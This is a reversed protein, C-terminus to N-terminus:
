LTKIKVAKDLLVKSLLGQIFLCNNKSKARNSTKPATEFKACDVVAENDPVTESSFCDTIGFAVTVTRLVSVPNERLKCVSPSPRKLKTLRGIPAYSSVTSAALKELYTCVPMVSSSLWFATTSGTSLAPFTCSTTVTVSFAEKSLVVVASTLVRNSARRSESSGM